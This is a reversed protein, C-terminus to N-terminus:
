EENNNRTEAPRSTTGPKPQAQITYDVPVQFLSLDPESRVINTLRYTTEGKRTESHKILIFMKLAPAYWREDVIEVPGKNSGVGAPITQTTRTGEAEIGEIMEKGLSEKRNDSKNEGTVNVPSNQQSPSTLPKEPPTAPGRVSNEATNAPVRANDPNGDTVKTASRAAAGTQPKLEIRRTKYAIRSSPQLNYIQKAVPDSIIITKYMALNEVMGIPPVRTQEIRTRGEKDRSLSSVTQRVIKNGDPLIQVKDTILDASFPAGKVTQREFNLEAPLSVSNGGTIGFPMITSLILSPDVPRRLPNNPDKPDATGAQKKQKEQGTVSTCLNGSVVLSVACAASLVINKKM